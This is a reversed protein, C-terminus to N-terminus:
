DIRSSKLREFSWQALWHANTHLANRSRISGQVVRERPTALRSEDVHRFAERIVFDEAFLPAFSEEICARGRRQNSQERMNPRCKTGLSSGFVALWRVRPRWANIDGSARTAGVHPRTAVREAAPPRTM